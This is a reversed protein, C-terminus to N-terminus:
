FISLLGIINSSKLWKVGLVIRIIEYNFINFFLITPIILILIINQIFNFDDSNKQIM